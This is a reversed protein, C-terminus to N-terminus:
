FHSGIDIVGGQSFQLKQNKEIPDWGVALGRKIIERRATHFVEFSDTDVLLFIHEKAPDLRELAKQFESNETKVADINEGKANAVPILDDSVTYLIQGGKISFSVNPEYRYYDNEIKAKRLKDVKLQFDTIGNAECEKWVEAARETLSNVDPFFITNARCVFIIGKTSGESLIPTVVKGKAGSASLAVFIIVFFLSGIVNTVIDMFSDLGGVANQIPEIHKAM